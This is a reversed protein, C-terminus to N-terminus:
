QDRDKRVHKVPSSGVDDKRAKEGKHLKDLQDEQKAGKIINDGNNERYEVSGEKVKKLPQNKKEQDNM